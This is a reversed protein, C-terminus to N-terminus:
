PRKAEALESADIEALSPARWLHLNGDQQLSGLVNGDPSFTPRWFVDYRSEFNLLEQRSDVDWIKIAEDGDGGAMMRTGDLSFSVSHAGILFSGLTAAPRFTALDWLRVYGLQSAVAVFKGDPSIRSNRPDQIELTLRKELGTTIERLLCQGDYGCVFYWRGDPSICSPGNIDQWSQTEQFSNLDWL